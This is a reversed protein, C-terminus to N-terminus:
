RIADRRPRGRRLVALIGPLWWTLVLGEEFALDPLASVAFVLPVLRLLLVM